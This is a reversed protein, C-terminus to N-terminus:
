QGGGRRYLWQGHLFIETSPRGPMYYNIMGGNEAFVFRVFGCVRCALSVHVMTGCVCPDHISGM